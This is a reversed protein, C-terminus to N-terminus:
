KECVGIVASVLRSRQAVCAAPGLTGMVPVAMLTPFVTAFLTLPPWQVDIELIDAPAIPDHRWGAVLRVIALAITWERQGVVQIGGIM